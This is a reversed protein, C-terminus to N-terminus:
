PASCSTGDRPRPPKRHPFLRRRSTTPDLPSNIAAHLLQAMPYTPDAELASNVAVRAFAPQEGTWATWATLTLPAASDPPLSRRALATWLDLLHAPDPDEWSMAQDRAQVDGLGVVLRAAADYTMASDGRKVRVRAAQLLAITENRIGVHATHDDARRDLETRIRAFAQRVAQRAAPEPPRVRASLEALPVPPPLGATVAAAAVASGRGTSLPIGEPPCCTADRCSYSWWRDREVCVSEFLRVGRIRCAEAVADHLPRYFAFGPRGDAPPTDVRLVLSMERAGSGTLLAVLRHAAVVFREPAPLDLRLVPEVRGAEDRRIGLLVVSDTPEAGLLYPVAEILEAASSVRVRTQGTMPTLFTESM